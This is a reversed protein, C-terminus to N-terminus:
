CPRASPRCASIAKTTAPKACASPPAQKWTLSYRSAKARSCSTPLGGACAIGNRAPVQTTSCCNKRSCPWFSTVPLPIPRSTRLATSGLSLGNDATRQLPVLTSEGIFSAVFDNAPHDHLRRPTDVQVLEGGRMIAIRDSMTLAERQDHTVYIMTAGLRKHLTRLEIQMIERLQKDLASLPEDM